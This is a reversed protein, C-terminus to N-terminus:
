VVDVMTQQMAAHAALIPDEEDTQQLVDMLEVLLQMTERLVLQRDETTSSYKQATFFFSERADKLAKPDTM